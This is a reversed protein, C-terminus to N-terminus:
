KGGIYSSIGGSAEGAAGFSWTHTAPESSGAVKVYSATALSSSSNLRLVLNWGAPPTITNSANRVVVFAVMVDGSQTGAPLGITLTSGVAGNNSATAARLSIGPPPTTHPMARM